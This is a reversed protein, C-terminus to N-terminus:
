SMQKLRIVISIFETKKNSLNENIKQKENGSKEKRTPKNIIKYQRAEVYGSIHGINGVVM